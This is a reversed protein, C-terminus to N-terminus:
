KKLLLKTNNESWQLYKWKTNKPLPAMDLIGLNKSIHFSGFIFLVIYLFSMNLSQVDRPNHNTDQNGSPYCEEMLSQFKPFVHTSIEELVQFRLSPSVLCSSIPPPCFSPFSVFELTQILSAPCTLHEWEIGYLPLVQSPWPMKELFELSKWEFWGLRPSHGLTKNEKALTNSFVVLAFWWQHLLMLYQSSFEM